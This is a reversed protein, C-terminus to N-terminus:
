SKDVPPFLHLHNEVAEIVQPSIGTTTMEVRWTESPVWGSGYYYKFGITFFPPQTHVYGESYPTHPWVILTDPYTTTDFRTQTAKGNVSQSFLASGQKYNLVSLDPYKELMRELRELEKVQAEISRKRNRIEALMSPNM